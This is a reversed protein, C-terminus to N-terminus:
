LDRAGPIGQVFLGSSSGTELGKVLLVQMLKTPFPFFCYPVRETTVRQFPFIQRRLSFQVVLVM